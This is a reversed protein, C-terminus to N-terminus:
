EAAIALPEVAPEDEDTLFTPLAAVDTGDPEVPLTPGDMPEPDGFTRLPEPLWGTGDLLREAERAMEAKKLHDILQAAQDGKAERVAELIRGKTVRGLYNDYTPRWGAEAMDLGTAVQLRDAEAFRRDLGHQSLGAGGFRDVKEFLANVGYSVCHALLAARTEDDLGDLWDWLAQDDGDPLRQGWAQQREEVNTASPSAKLDAAQASFYVSRVTVELVAGHSGRRFQDVVLRHLLLTMAIRPHAAVADRLALTRHATLERMLQEPLPKVGEDEEVPEPAPTLGLVTVTPAVPEGTLVDSGDDSDPEGEAGAVIVPAVRPEDEPRVFGREIRLEGDGDVTVFVGARAVEAPDFSVPRSQYTELAAEIECM